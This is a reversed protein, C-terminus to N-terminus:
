KTLILKDNRTIRLRYTEGRYEIRIERKGRFLDTAPLPRNQAAPPPEQNGKGQDVSLM